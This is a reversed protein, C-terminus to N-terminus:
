RPKPPVPAPAAHVQGAPAPRVLAPGAPLPGVPAPGAPAPGAPAPRVLAPGAPSPGIRAVAPRLPSRDGPPHEREAVLLVTTRWSERRYEPIAVTRRLGVKELVRLSAANEADCLARVRRVELRGFAFQVLARAAQTGLGRGWADRRLTYGLEAEDDALLRLGANGILAGDAKRVLALEYRRRPTAAADALCGALYARTAELDNPGWPQFRCVAPDADYAHMAAVDDPALERLRLDATELEVPIM